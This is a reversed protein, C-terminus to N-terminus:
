YNNNNNNACMEIWKFTIPLVVIILYVLLHILFRVLWLDIETIISKLCLEFGDAMSAVITQDFSSCIM